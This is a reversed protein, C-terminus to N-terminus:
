GSANTEPQGEKFIEESIRRSVQQCFIIGETIISRKRGKGRQCNWLEPTPANKLDSSIMGIGFVIGVHLIM